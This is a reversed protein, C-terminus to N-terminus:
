HPPMYPPTAKRIRSPRKRGFLGVREEEPEFSYSVLKLVSRRVVRGDKDTEKATHWVVGGPVQPTIVSLTWTTGSANRTVTRVHATPLFESFVEFPMNLAVVEASTESLIVNSTADTTVSDRKLVYPAVSNSYFSTTSTKSTAALADAREIYATIKQDEISLATTGLDQIKMERNPTEGRFGQKLIQPESEFRKGALQVITRVELTLGDDDLDVLTTKTETATSQTVAGKEDLCETVVRVLKWAGPLCQGWLHHRRSLGPGEACAPVCCGGLTIVIALGALFTRV